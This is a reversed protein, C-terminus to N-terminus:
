PSRKGRRPAKRTNVAKAIRKIRKAQAKSVFLDHLVHDLLDLADEVASRDLPGPQHSGANGIWKIALLTDAEDPHATRFHHDIRHHLAIPMRKGKSTSTRPVKFHTMLDEIAVRIANSAASADTWYLDFARRIADAIGEPCGAPIDFLPPSPVVQTPWMYCVLVEGYQGPDMDPELDNRTYGSVLVCDACSSNPCQAFGAFRQVAMDPEFWIERASQITAANDRFQFEKASFRLPGGGCRACRWNPPSSLTFWKALHDQYITM